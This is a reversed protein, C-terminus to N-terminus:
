RYIGGDKTEKPTHGTYKQFARNMRHRNEYGVAVAVDKLLMNRELLQQAMEIRLRNIRDLVSCGYIAKYSRGAYGANLGFFASITSVNLDPDTFNEAIYRNMKIIWAPIMEADMTQQSAFFCNFIVDIQDMVEAVSKRYLIQPATDFVSLADAGALPWMCDLVMRFKNLLTYFIPTAAQITIHGLRFEEEAMQHLLHQLRHFDKRELGNLFEMEWRKTQNIRRSDYVEWGNLLVDEYFVVPCELSLMTVFGSLERAQNYGYSITDLDRPASTATRFVVPIEPMARMKELQHRLREAYQSLQAGEGFPVSLLLVIERGLVALIMQFDMDSCEGCYQGLKRAADHLLTYRSKGQAVVLEQVLNVPAFVTCFFSRDEVAYGLQRSVELIESHSMYSEMLLETLFFDQIKPLFRTPYILSDEDM